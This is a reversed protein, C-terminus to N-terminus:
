RWSACGTASRAVLGPTLSASRRAAGLTGFFLVRWYDDADSHFAPNIDGGTPIQHFWALAIAAYATLHM